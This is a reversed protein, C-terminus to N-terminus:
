SSRRLLLLLDQVVRYGRRGLSSSRCAAIGAGAVLRDGAQELHARKSLRARKEFHPRARQIDAPALHRVLPSHCAPFRLCDLALKEGGTVDLGELGQRLEGVLEGELALGLNSLDSRM